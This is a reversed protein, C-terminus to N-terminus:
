FGDSDGIGGGQSVGLKGQFLFCLVVVLVVAAAKAGTSSRSTKSCPIVHYSCHFEQAVQQRGWDSSCNSKKNTECGWCSLTIESQRHSSCLFPLLIHLCLDPLTKKCWESYRGLALFLMECSNMSDFQRM